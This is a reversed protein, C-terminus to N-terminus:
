RGKTKALVVTASGISGTNESPVTYMANTHTISAESGTRGDVAEYTHSGPLADGGGGAGAGAGASISASQYMENLQHAVNIAKGSIGRTSKTTIRKKAAEEQEKRIEAVRVLDQLVVENQNNRKQWVIGMVVIGVLLVGVIALLAVIGGGISGGGGGDGASGGDGGAKGTSGSADGGNGGVDVRNVWTTTSATTFNPLGCIIREPELPDTYNPQCGTQVYSVQILTCEAERHNTQNQETGQPCTTCVGESSLGAGKLAEAANCYPQQRCAADRHNDDDSFQGQPCMACRGSKILTAGELYTGKGCRPQENCFGIRHYGSPQYKGNSCANCEQNTVRSGQVSVYQGRACTDMKTCAISNATESYVTEGDCDKCVRDTSTTKNVEIYQGSTCLTISACQRNSTATAAEVEYQFDTCPDSTDCVRDQTPGPSAVETQGKTSDCEAAYPICAVNAHNEAAMFGGFSCGICDAAAKFKQRTDVVYREGKACRPQVLCKTIQHNQEPQYHGDPCQICVRAADKSEYTSIYEGANCTTQPLGKTRVTFAIHPNAPATTM